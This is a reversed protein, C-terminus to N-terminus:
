RDPWDFRAGLFAYLLENHPAFFRALDSRLAEPMPETYDGSLTWGSNEFKPFLDKLTAALGAADELEGPAYAHRPLGAFDAVADMAARPRSKLADTELVLLDARKVGAAVCRHLQAAYLSRYLYQNSIGTRIRVCADVLAAADAATAPVPSRWRPFASRGCDLLHAAEARMVEGLAGIRERTGDEFCAGADFRVAGAAVRREAGARRPDAFFVSRALAADVAPGGGADGAEFWFCDRLWDVVGRDRKLGKKLQVSVSVAFQAFKPEAALAAPACERLGRTANRPGALAVCTLVAGAHANLV